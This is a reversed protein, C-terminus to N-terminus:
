KSKQLALLELMERVYADLLAPEFEHRLLPGDEASLLKIATDPTDGLARWMMKAIVERTEEIRLVIDDMVNRIGLDQTLFNTNYIFSASNPLRVRNDQEYLLTGVNLTTFAKERLRGLQIMLYKLASGIALRRLSLNEPTAPVNSLDLEPLLEPPLGKEVTTRWIVQCKEPEPILMAKLSDPLGLTKYSLNSFDPDDEPMADLAYCYGVPVRRGGPLVLEASIMAGNEHVRQLKEPNALYAQFGKESLQSQTQVEDKQVENQHQAGPVSAQFEQKLHAPDVIHKKEVDLVSQRIDQPVDVMEFQREGPNEGQPMSGVLRFDLHKRVAM